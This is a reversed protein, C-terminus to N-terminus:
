PSESQFPRVMPRLAVSGDPSWVEAQIEFGLRRYFAVNAANTSVLSCPLRERSCRELLPKTISTGLGTGQSLSRVGIYQLTWHPEELAHARAAVIMQAADGAREAGAHRTLIEVGRAFDDPGVLSLDPPIWATAADGSESIYTHGREFTLNLILDFWEAAFRPWAVDDPQVWRLYPDRAFADTWTEIITSFDSRLAHRM